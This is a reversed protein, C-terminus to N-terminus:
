ALTTNGNDDRGNIIPVLWSPPNEFDFVVLAGDVIMWSEGYNHGKCWQRAEWGDKRRILQQLRDAPVM